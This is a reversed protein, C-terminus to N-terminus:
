TSAGKDTGAVKYHMSIDAPSIMGKPTIIADVLSADICDFAPYLAEISDLTTASTGCRRVEGGDRMEMVIDKRTLKTPDPSVAFVHYPIHYHHAGIANALTGVKNVVTGDMAVLDAATLYHDVLGEGMLHSGMGDTVLKVRIGLQALSPATLRSGQLYPRTEPVYVTVRNGRETAKLMSLTFSHEAFCTTLVGEDGTILSAGLDSMSEYAHDFREEVADLLSDTFSVLDRDHSSRISQCHYWVSLDVVFDKLTRAMTTNTPRAEALLNAAHVFTDLRDPQLGADIWRAVLRMTTLAVQLPGGGQTVMARIADAVQQVSACAVCSIEWPYRRRDGILLRDGEIRAIYTKRLITPLRDDLIMETGGEIGSVKTIM